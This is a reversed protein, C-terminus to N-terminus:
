LAQLVGKVGAAFYNSWEHKTADIKLQGDDDLQLVREGFIQSQVNSVRISRKESQTLAVAILIDHDSLAMPLVSYYSYDIHEGILNM